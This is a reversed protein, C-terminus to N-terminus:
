ELPSNLTSIENKNSQILNFRENEKQLNSELRKKKQQLEEIKAIYEKIEEQYRLIWNM